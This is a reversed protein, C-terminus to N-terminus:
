ETINSFKIEQQGGEKVYYIIKLESPGLKKDAVNYDASSRLIWQAERSM